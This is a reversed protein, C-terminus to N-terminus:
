NRFEKLKQFERLKKFGKELIKKIEPFRLDATEVSPM